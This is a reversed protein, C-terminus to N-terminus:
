DICHNWEQVATHTESKIFDSGSQEQSFGRAQDFDSLLNGGLPDHKQSVTLLWFLRETFYDHLQPKCLQLTKLLKEISCSLSVPNETTNLGTKLQTTVWFSKESDPPNPAKELETRTFEIGNSVSRQLYKFRTTFTVRSVCICTRM